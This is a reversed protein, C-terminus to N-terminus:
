DFSFTLGPAATVDVHQTGLDVYDYEVVTAPDPGNPHLGAPVTVRDDIGRQV